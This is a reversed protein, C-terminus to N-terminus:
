LTEACRVGVELPARDESYTSRFTTQAFFPLLAWSGGRAVFLGNKVDDCRPDVLVTPGSSCPGDYAQAADAVWESMNGGLNRIGLATVDQSDSGPRPGWPLPMEHDVPRCISSPDTGGEGIVRGRGVIAYHCVDPDAGWPYRREQDRDGAAYEWEAETPLRKGQAECALKAHEHSLCNVPFDEFDGPQTTYTCAPAAASRVLPREVLGAVVLARMQRVTLEESDLAFAGVRVLREPSPAIDITTALPLTDDGRVFLGGEVCIMGAKPNRSCATSAAEPSSGPLPGPTTEDELAKVVLTGTSPDCTLSRSPDSAVGACATFLSLGLRRVGGHTPPLSALVDIPVGGAPGGGANSHDARFLRVRLRFGTAPADDPIGFSLPWTSEATLGFLRRCGACAPSGDTALLEVLLRDGLQPLPADTYVDIVWQPRPSAAERGCCALAVVFALACPRISSPFRM